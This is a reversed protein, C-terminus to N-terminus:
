QSAEGFVIELVPHLEAVWAKGTEDKHAKTRGTQGHDFDFFLVGTVTVPISGPSIAHADIGEVGKKLAMRAEKIQQAFRSTNPFQGHKGAFCNTSPIEAVFSHGTPETGSGGQTVQATEDTIALHYDGDPELKYLALFGHIRYVRKEVEMRDFEGSGAIPESPEIDNFGTVDIALVNQSDIDQAEPDSAM